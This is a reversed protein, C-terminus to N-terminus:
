WLRFDDGLGGLEDLESALEQRRQFDEQERVGQQLHKLTLGTLNWLKQEKTIQIQQNRRDTSTVRPGSYNQPKFDQIFWQYIYIYDGLDFAQPIESDKIKTM